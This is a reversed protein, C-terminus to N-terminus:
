PQCGEDIWQTIVDIEEQSRFPGGDPMRPFRGSGDPKLAGQLLAQVLNADVGRPPNQKIVEPQILQLGRATSALLEAAINWSFHATQHKGLLDAPGNQDFYDSMTQDLIGKVQEFTVPM